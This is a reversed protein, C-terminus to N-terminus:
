TLGSSPNRLLRRRWLPGINEWTGNRRNLVCIEAKLNFYIFFTWAQKWFKVDSKLQIEFILKCQFMQQQNRDFSHISVVTAATLVLTENLARASTNLVMYLTIYWSNVHLIVPFGVMFLWKCILPIGFWRKNMMFLVCCSLCFHLIKTKGDNICHTVIKITFSLGHQNISVQMVRTMFIPRFCILYLVYVWVSLCVSM